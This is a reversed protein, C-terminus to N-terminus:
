LDLACTDMNSLTKRKVYAFDLGKKYLNYAFMMGHSYKLGRVNVHQTKHLWLVRRYQDPTFKQAVLTQVGKACLKVIMLDVGLSPPFKACVYCKPSLGIVYDCAFERKLLGPIFKSKLVDEKLFYKDKMAEFFARNQEPVCKQEFESWTSQAHMIVLSDTDSLVIKWYRTNIQYLVNYIARLMHEKSNCLIAMGIAAPSCYRAVKKRMHVEFCDEEVREAHMFFRPENMCSVLQTESVFKVTRYHLPNKITFGFFSNVALKACSGFIEKNKNKSLSAELRLNAGWMVFEWLDATPQYQVVLTVNSVKVGMELYFQVLSTSYFAQRAFHSQILQLRKNAYLNSAELYKQMIEGTDERGIEVKKPFLPWMDTKKKLSDDCEFDALVFGFIKGEFIERLIQSETRKKYLINWEPHIQLFKQYLSFFQGSPSQFEKEFQCIYVVFIKGPFFQSLYNIRKFDRKRVDDNKIKLIPHIEEPDYFKKCTPYICAHGGHGFIEIGLGLEAFYGDVRHRTTSLIPSFEGSNWQTQVKKKFIWSLLSLILETMKNKKQKECGFEPIYSRIKYRLIEPGSPVSNQAFGYLNTMDFSTIGGVFEASDGYIHENIKTVGKIAERVYITSLGGMINKRILDYVIPSPIYIKTDAQLKSFAIRESVGPLSIYDHFIECKAFTWFINAFKECATVLPEVDCATYIGVWDRLTKCGYDSFMKRYYELEEQESPPVEVLNLKKLAESESLKLNKMKKVFARYEVGLVNEGHRLTSCWYELDPLGHYKLDDLSRIFEYPMKLKAEPIDLSKLFKEYSIFNGQGLYSLTDVFRLRRTQLLLYRGQRVTCFEIKGEIKILAPIVHERLIKADFGAGNYSIVPLRSIYSLFNSFIKKVKYSKLFSAKEKLFCILPRLEALLIRTQAKSIEILYQIFDEIYNPSEDLWFLKAKEFYPVNSAVAVLFPTLSGVIESSKGFKQTPSFKTWFAESDFVAHYKIKKM